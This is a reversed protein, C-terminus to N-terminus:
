GELSEEPPEADVVELSRRQGDRGFAAVSDGNWPPVAVIMVERLDDTRAVGLRGDPHSIFQGQTGPPTGLDMGFVANVSDDSRPLYFHTFVPTEPSLATPTLEKAPTTGLAVTVSEPERENAFELLATLLGCTV